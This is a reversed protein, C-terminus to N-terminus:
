AARQPLLDPMPRNRDPLELTTDALYSGNVHAQRRRRSNVWGLRIPRPAEDWFRDSQYAPEM